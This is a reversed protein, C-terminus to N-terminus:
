AIREKEHSLRSSASFFVPQLIGLLSSTPSYLMNYSTAYLGIEKSSFVRGVMVRDINNIFWNTMNTAFVTVGYASLIRADACWFLPKLSSSGPLLSDFSTM